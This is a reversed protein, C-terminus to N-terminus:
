EAAPEPPPEPEAPPAADGEGEGEGAAPLRDLRRGPASRGTLWAPDMPYVLPDFIVLYLHWVVIALTALVAEYFHIVTAVDTTWKPLWTLSLNEFWLVFGTVAMVATGWVVALYEMKEPYGIWPSKPLERRRGLFFALREGLEHVDELGPRAMALACARARRRRVLHVLHFLAAGLLVVAATRHVLGRLGLGQEWGSLPMAWWADPYKLAFGSYALVIFSVALMGHAIRFGLSMREPGEGAPIAARLGPLRAKRYLDLANHLIMGGIVLYILWLYIGRIVYVATHRPETPLVHVPGIAFRTGAGPHCNGCTQALNQKAIHSRPDSSPLIDHVGHCSACSAVTEKGARMALGHYSDQYAPVKDPDIGFKADLRVDGHCRGCTMTALNAAYVPSKPELPSLIQHEGHCDVCSPAQRVGAALAQGHVSGRFTEAVEKHCVACTDVVRLHNVKSRPDAAPFIAHAGHCSSCEAGPQGNRIARAHVSQEYAEVPRVVHLRFRDAMAPNAHCQGCTEAIRARNIPSAPDDKSAIGHIPGHCAICGSLWGKGNVIAKAHISAQFGEVEDEHCTACQPAAVGDPHPQQDAGVHCDTCELPGHVSAAIQATDVDHCDTCAEGAAAAARPLLGAILVLAALAPVRGIRNTTM